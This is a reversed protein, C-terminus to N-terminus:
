ENNDGKIHQGRLLKEFQAQTIFDNRRLGHYTAYLASKVGDVQNKTATKGTEGKFEVRFSDGTKIPMRMVIERLVNDHATDDYPIDPIEAEATDFAPIDGNEARTTLINDKDIPFTFADEGPLLIRDRADIAKKYASTGAPIGSLKNEAHITDNVFYAIGDPLTQFYNGYQKPHADAYEVFAVVRRRLAAANKIPFVQKAMAPNQAMMLLMSSLFEASM